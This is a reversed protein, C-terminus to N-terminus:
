DSDIKSLIAEMSYAFSINMKYLTHELISVCICAPIGIFGGDFGFFVNPV